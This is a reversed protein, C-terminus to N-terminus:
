SISWGLRKTLTFDTLISPRCFMIRPKQSTWDRGKNPWWSNSVVHEVWPIKSSRSAVPLLLIRRPNGESSCDQSTIAPMLKELMYPLCEASGWGSEMKTFRLLKWFRCHFISITSTAGEPFLPWMTCLNSRFILCHLRGFLSLPLSLPRLEPLTYAPFFYNQSSVLFRLLSYM